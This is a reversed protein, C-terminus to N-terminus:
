RPHLPLMNASWYAADSVPRVVGDRAECIPCENGDRLSSHEWAVVEPNLKSQQVVSVAMARTYETQLLAKAQTKALRPLEKSGKFNELSQNIRKGYPIFTAQWARYQAKDRVKMRRGRTRKPRKQRKTKPQTVEAFQFSESEAPVWEVLAGYVGHVHKTIADATPPTDGNFLAELGSLVRYLVNLCLKTGVEAGQRYLDDVGSASLSVYNQKESVGNGSRDASAYFELGGDVYGDFALRAGEKAFEELELAPFRSFMRPSFTESTVRDIVGKAQRALLLAFVRRSRELAEGERNEMLVYDVKLESPRPKRRYATAPILDVSHKRAASPNM